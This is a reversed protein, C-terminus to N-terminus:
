KTLIIPEEAVLVTHEAQTVIGNGSDKLVPYSALIRQSIMEKLATGVALRSNTKDLWRQAFPMFLYKEAIEEQIKRTQPMRLPKPNILSFIEVQDTDQVLGSGTTAFPEIAFIDGEKLTYPIQTKVNPIEVGAHLLGKKIMHGTLNSIPLFNHSKITDEIKESITQIKTGPTMLKIAENLASISANVLEEHNGSLDVTYATDTPADNLTVGLDIKVVDTEGLTIDCNTEPTFHAAKENISINVPFAPKAEEEFIMQEVTEAIDLLSEGIMILRKSEERIKSSIKGSQIFDEKDQESLM